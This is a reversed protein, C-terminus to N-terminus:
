YALVRSHVCRTTQDVYRPNRCSVVGAAFIIRGTFIAALQHYYQARLFIRAPLIKARYGWGPIEVIAKQLRRIATCAYLNLLLHLSVLEASASRWNQSKQTFLLPCCIMAATILHCQRGGARSRAKLVVCCRSTASSLKRVEEWDVGKPALGGASDGRYFKPLPPSRRKYAGAYAYKRM